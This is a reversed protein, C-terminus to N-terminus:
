NEIGDEVFTYCGGIGKAKARELVTSAVGIDMAGTGEGLMQWCSLPHHVHRVM